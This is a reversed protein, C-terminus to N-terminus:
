TDSIRWEAFKWNDLESLKLRYGTRYVTNKDGNGYSRNMNTPKVNLCLEYIKSFPVVYISKLNYLFLSKLDCVTSAHKTQTTHHWIVYYLANDEAFIKDKELRGKYILAEKSKGVSKCEFYFLDDRSVDPCYECRSDTKHRKGGFLMATLKETLEGLVTRSHGHNGLPLDFLGQQILDPKFKPLNTM